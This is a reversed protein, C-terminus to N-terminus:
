PRINERKIWQLNSFRNQTLKRTLFNFDIVEYRQWQGTYMKIGKFKFKFATADIRKVLLNFSKEIYSRWYPQSKMFVLVYFTTLQYSGNIWKSDLTSICLDMPTIGDNWTLTWLSFVLFYRNSNPDFVSWLQFRSRLLMLKFTANWTLLALQIWVWIKYQPRSM